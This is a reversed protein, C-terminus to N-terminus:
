VTPGSPPKGARDAGFDSEGGQQGGGLRLDGFALGLHFAGSRLYCGDGGGVEARPQGVAGGPEFAEVRDACSQFLELPGGM